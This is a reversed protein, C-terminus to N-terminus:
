PKHSDGHDGHGKMMFIHMLPCLLFIAYPLITGIRINMLKLIIIGAAAGAVCLFLVRLKSSEKQNHNKSCCDM